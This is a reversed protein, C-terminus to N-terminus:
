HAAEGFLYSNAGIVNNTAFTKMMDLLAGIEETAKDCKLESPVNYNKHECHVWVEGKAVTQAVWFSLGKGTKMCSDIALAEKSEFVAALLAQFLGAVKTVHGEECTVGMTKTAKVTCSKIHSTISRFYAVTPNAFFDKVDKEMGEYLKSDDGLPAQGRMYAFIKNTGELCKRVVSQEASKLGKCVDSVGTTAPSAPVSSNASDDLVHAAVSATYSSNGFNVEYAPLTVNKLGSIWESPGYIVLADRVISADTSNAERIALTVNSQGGLIELSTELGATNNRPVFYSAFNFTLMLIKDSMVSYVINNLQNVMTKNNNINEINATVYEYFQSTTINTM